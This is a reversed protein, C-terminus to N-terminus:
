ADDHVEVFELTFRPPRTAYLFYARAYAAHRDPFRYAARPDATLFEPEWGDGTAVYRPPEDDALGHYKLVVPM